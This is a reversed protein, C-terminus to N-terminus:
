TSVVYEYRRFERLYFAKFDQAIPEEKLHTCSSEVSQGFFDIRNSNVKTEKQLGFRYQRKFSINKFYFDNEPTIQEFALFYGILLEYLM